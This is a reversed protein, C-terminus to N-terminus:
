VVWQGKKNKGAGYLGPRKCQECDRDVPRWCPLLKGEQARAVVCHFTPDWGTRVADLVAQGLEKPTGDNLVIPLYPFRAAIERFSREEEENAPGIDGRRIVVVQGGAQRIKQVENAYRVDTVVIPGETAHRALTMIKNVWYDPDQMRKGAGHAVLLPRIVAKEEPTPAWVDIGYVEHILTALDAKLPDAFALRRYGPMNAAATDKGVQAYGCLGILEV